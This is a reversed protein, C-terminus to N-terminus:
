NKNKTNIITVAAATAITIIIIISITITITITIGLLSIGWPTNLAFCNQVRRIHILHDLNKIKKGYM